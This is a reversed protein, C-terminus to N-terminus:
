SRRGDVWERIFDAYEPVPMMNLDEDSHGDSRRADYFDSTFETFEYWLPTSGIVGRLGVTEVFWDRVARIVEAPENQHSKIDLGSIDSLARRYDFRYSSRCTLGRCRGM